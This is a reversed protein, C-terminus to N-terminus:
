AVRRDQVRGLVALERQRFQGGAREFLDILEVDGSRAIYFGADHGEDDRCQSFTLGAELAAVFAARGDVHQNYYRVMRVDQVPGSQAVAGHAMFDYPVCLRALWYGSDLGDQDRASDFRGGHLLYAVVSDVGGRAAKLGKSYSREQWYSRMEAVAEFLNQYLSPAAPPAFAVVDGSYEVADGSRAATQAFVKNLGNM